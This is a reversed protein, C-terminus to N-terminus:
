LVKYRVHHKKHEAIYDDLTPEVSHAFAFSEQVPKEVPKHPMDRIRQLIEEAKADAADQEQRERQAKLFKNKRVRAMIRQVELNDEESLDPDWDWWVRDIESSVQVGHRKAVQQAFRDIQMDIQMVEDAEGIFEVEKVVKIM